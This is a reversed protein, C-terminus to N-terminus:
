FFCSWARSLLFSDHHIDRAQKRKEEPAEEGGTKQFPAHTYSSVRLITKTVSTLFIPNTFWYGGDSLTFHFFDSTNQTGAPSKHKMLLTQSLLLFTSRRSKSSAGAGFRFFKTKNMTQPTMDSLKTVNESM